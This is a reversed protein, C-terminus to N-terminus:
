AVLAFDYFAANANNNSRNHLILRTGNKSVAMGGLSVNVSSGNLELGSITKHSHLVATSFDWPVSLVFKVLHTTTSFIVCKGDPSFTFCRWVESSSLGIASNVLTTLAWANRVIFGFSCFDSNIIETIDLIILFWKFAIDDNDTTTVDSNVTRSGGM